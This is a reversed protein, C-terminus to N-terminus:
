VVSKRDATSISAIELGHVQLKGPRHDASAQRVVSKLEELGESGQWKKLAGSLLSSAIRLFKACEAPVSSLKTMAKRVLLRSPAWVDATQKADAEEDDKVAVEKAMGDGDGAANASLLETAVGAELRLLEGYLKASKPSFRIGRFLLKRAAAIHGLQLERDAALLWLNIHKPHYKLAKLLVANLITTSGSRLCFDIHQYWLRVDGKWRSTARELIKHVRRVGAFDSVSKRRRWGLKKARRDRLAQLAVEYRVYSLYDQPKGPIRQLLYEFDRRRRVIQRIEDDDFIRKRRLDDLEPVMDQM